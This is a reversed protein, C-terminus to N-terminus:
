EVFCDDWFLQMDDWSTKKEEKKKLSNEKQRDIAIRHIDDIRSLYGSSFIDKISMPTYGCINAALNLHYEDKRLVGGHDHGHINLCCTLGEIPEHSLLIKQSIWLPGNYTEDFFKRISTKDHNGLILVKHEAKIRIIYDPNGIDGLFVLTANKPVANNIREVQESPSIWDKDMLKVDEDGFHPDSFFYLSKRDAWHRFPEYLMSQIQSM